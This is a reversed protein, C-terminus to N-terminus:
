RRVKQGNKSALSDVLRQLFQRQESQLGTFKVGFGIEFVSNVVEGPFPLRTGNKLLLFVRVPSGDSVYGSSAVFCGDTSIDNITAQNTRGSGEWEASLNVRFRGVRRRDKGSRRDIIM